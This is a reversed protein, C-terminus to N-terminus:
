ASSRPSLTQNAHYWDTATGPEELDIIRVATTGVYIRIVSVILLADHKATATYSGILKSM